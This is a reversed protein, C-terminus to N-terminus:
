DRSGFFDWIANNSKKIIPQLEVTENYELKSNGGSGAERIAKAM